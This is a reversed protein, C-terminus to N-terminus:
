HSVVALTNGNPPWPVINQSYLAFTSLWYWILNEKFSSRFDLADNHFLSEWNVFFRDTNLVLHVCWKTPPKVYCGVLRQIFHWGKSPISSQFFSSIILKLTLNRTEFLPYLNSDQIPKITFLWPAYVM